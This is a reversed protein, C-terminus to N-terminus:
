LSAALRGFAHDTVQLALDIDQETHALSLFMNHRHHLYVGEQLAAAAFRAGKAQDPDDEFLVLPLQAPGSQRIALGHRAAQAQLGDRLRRGMRELHAPADRRQLVDLTALSAAMAAGGMWFSGTIYIEQAARRWAEGGTVAALAHGNAIAKSWASLDPRVGLSEWSGALSLRLGARVEDIVLAAGRADCLARARQAFAPEPLEQHQGLDHRFASVLIAALDDGAERAAAELSDIDNYQFYILHARDESTVGALSPTCWPVAGHYAGKALLIKRKGTGARAIMLAATTADTGNKQFMAWDAHPLLGVLREALEVLRATPGNMCDGQEAQRRAAAEIEPHKHGAIVPGWSCMFDLYERGDADWLRCGEARSFFQPYGPPLGSARLHGYMGGPIVRAARSRLRADELGIRTGPDVVTSPATTM